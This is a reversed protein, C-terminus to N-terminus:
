KGEFYSITLPLHRDVPVEQLSFGPIRQFYMEGTCGQNALYKAKLHIQMGFFSLTGVMFLYSTCYYFRIFLQAVTSTGNAQSMLVVDMM